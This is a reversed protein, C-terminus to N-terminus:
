LNSMIGSANIWVVFSCNSATGNNFWYLFGTTPSVYMGVQSGSSMSGNGLLFSWFAGTTSASWVTSTGNAIAEDITFSNSLVRGSAFGSTLAASAPSSPIALLGGVQTCFGQRTSNAQVDVQFIRNRWDMGSDVIGGNVHSPGNVTDVFAFKSFGGV